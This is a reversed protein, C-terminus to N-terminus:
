QVQQLKQQQEQVVVVEQNHEMQVQLQQVVEVVEMIHVVPLAQEVM